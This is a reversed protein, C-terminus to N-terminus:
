HLCDNSYPTVDCQEGTYEDIIFNPGAVCTNAHSDLECRAETGAIVEHATNAGVAHVVRHRKTSNVTSTNRHGLGQSM